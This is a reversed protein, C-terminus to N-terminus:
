DTRVPRFEREAAELEDAIEQIDTTMTKLDNELIRCLKAKASRGEESDTKSLRYLKQIQTITAM